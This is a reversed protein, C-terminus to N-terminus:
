QLPSFSHVRSTLTGCIPAPLGQGASRLRNEQRMSLLHWGTSQMTVSQDAHLGQENLQLELELAARVTVIDLFRVTTSLGACPPVM